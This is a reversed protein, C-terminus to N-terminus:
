DRDLFFKRTAITVVSLEFVPNSWLTEYSCFLAPPSVHREYAALTPFDILAIAWNTPGAIKAPLFYGILEGGCRRIPEPWERAYREFNSIKHIDLTYRICVTLV